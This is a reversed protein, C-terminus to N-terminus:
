YLLSVLVTRQIKAILICISINSTQNEKKKEQCLCVKLLIQDLYETSAILIESYTLHSIDCFFDKFQFSDNEEKQLSQCFSLIALTGSFATGYYHKTKM